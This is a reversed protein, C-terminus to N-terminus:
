KIVSCLPPSHSRYSNALQLAKGSNPQIQARPIEVLPLQLPLYKVFLKKVWTKVEAFTNKIQKALKALGSNEYVAKLMAAINQSEKIFNQMAPSTAFAKQFTAVKQAFEAFAQPAVIVEPKIGM